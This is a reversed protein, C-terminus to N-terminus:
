CVHDSRHRASFVDGRTAPRGCGGRPARPGIAGVGGMRSGAPATTGPRPGRPADAGDRPAPLIRLPAASPGPRPRRTSFGGSAWRLWRWARASSLSRGPLGWYLGRGSTLCAGVDPGRSCCAGRRGRRRFTLVSCIRRLWSTLELLHTPALIAFADSGPPSSLAFADSGPHSSLASARAGASSHSCLACVAFGFHPGTTRAVLGSSSYSSGAVAAPHHAAQQVHGGDLRPASSPAPNM